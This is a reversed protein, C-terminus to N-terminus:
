LCVLEPVAYCGLGADRLVEATFRGQVRDELGVVGAEEDRNRAM